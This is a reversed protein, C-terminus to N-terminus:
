VPFPLCMRLKGIFMHGVGNFFFLGFSFALIFDVGGSKFSVVAQVM